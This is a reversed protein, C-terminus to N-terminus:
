RYVTKKRKKRGIKRQPKIKARMEGEGLPTKARPLTKKKKRLVTVWGKEKIPNNGNGPKKKIPTTQASLNKFDNNGKRPSPRKMGNKQERKKKKGSSFHGGPVRERRKGFGPYKGREEKEEGSV